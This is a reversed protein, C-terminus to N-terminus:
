YPGANTTQSPVNTRSLSFPPHRSDVTLTPQRLNEDMIFDWADLLACAFVCLYQCFAIFLFVDVNVCVRVCGCRVRTRARACVCVRLGGDVGATRMGDYVFPGTYDAVKPWDQCTM